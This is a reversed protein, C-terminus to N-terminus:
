EEDDPIHRRISEIIVPKVPVDNHAGKTTTKVTKIKDIVETGDVVKGFVAYGFGAQTNDRHDLNPNDKVNIFFQSTASDVAPTRAMSLTYKMNKLGNGAENKIPPAVAKQIMDPTFGGGQIVFNPMVRHFITDDYFKNDVYHLFNKVTLPAEKEYLEITFSGMNTKVYVMPNVQKKEAMTNGAMACSILVLSIAVLTIYSQFKM